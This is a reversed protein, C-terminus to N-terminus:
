ARAMKRINAAYITTKIGSAFHIHFASFIFIHHRDNLYGGKITGWGYGDVWVKRGNYKTQIPNPSLKEERTMLGKGYERQDEILKDMTGQMTIGGIHQKHTGQGHKFLVM